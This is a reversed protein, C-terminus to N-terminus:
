QYEEVNKSVRSYMDTVYRKFVQCGDNLFAADYKLDPHLYNMFMSRISPPIILFPM